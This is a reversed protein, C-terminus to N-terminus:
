SRAGQACWRRWMTRYADELGRTFREADCLTGCMRERLGARVAALADLDRACRQALAVYAEPTPVVWDTLGVIALLMASGRAVPRVGALSLMPAGMWLSECTTTGGTYPFVDLSVDIEDYIALYGATGAGQRLDLREGAIGRETFQRRIFDKTPGILTDRFMLLRATPVAQLVRCWLDFVYGNLKHLGHLSGFTLQGKRQAPLPSVPPADQPTTFCCMGGPLRFLEETDLVPQGPPDMVEDTLRYDVTTLGTTNPYGLWTVQVPAPKLAFVDLRHGATHGALDVLIDIRDARVQEAVEAAGHGCTWRWNPVLTQLRATVADPAVVEAYCYVEVQQPDHQALVPEFYRVVPHRCLDPSVYGIRLRRESNWDRPPPPTWAAQGHLQGWRCHEAFVAAPEAQADYNLALLLNSHAGANGSQRRLAERYSAVAEAVHGQYFLAVGLDNYAAIYDPQLRLAQQYHAVAEDLQRQRVLALGLNHHAEAYSPQLTLAQRFSALGEDVRGLRTLAVGRNNYAQPYDARLHLAQQYSTAAEALKGQALLTNGLNFYGEVDPRRRLSHQYWAVAEDLKGQSQRLNGLNFSAVAAEPQLRLAEAFCAVAEDLRSLNQYAVGLNCHYDGNHPNVAIAQRIYTISHDYRGVQSALVGLLHLADAQQPNGQLVQRYLQEAQQLNGAQHQQWALTLADAVIAM